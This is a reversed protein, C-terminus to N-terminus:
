RVQGSQRIGEGTSSLAMEYRHKEHADSIMKQLHWRQSYSWAIGERQNPANVHPRQSVFTSM